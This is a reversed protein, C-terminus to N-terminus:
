KAKATYTIPTAYRVQFVTEHDTDFADLSLEGIPTHAVAAILASHIAAHAPHAGFPVAVGAVCHMSEGAIIGDYVTIGRAEIGERVIALSM